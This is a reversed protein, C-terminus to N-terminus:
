LALRPPEGAGGDVWARLAAALAPGDLGAQSGAARLHGEAREVLRGAGAWKGARAQLAAAAAQILGQLLHREAGAAVRWRDEWIEHAEWYDGADYLAAGRRLPDM